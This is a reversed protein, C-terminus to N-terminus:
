RIKAPCTQNWRSADSKPLVPPTSIRAKRLPALPVRLGFPRGRVERLTQLAPTNVAAKMRPSIAALKGEGPRRGGEGMRHALSLFPTAM